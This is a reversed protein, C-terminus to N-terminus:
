RCSLSRVSSIPGAIGPAVGIKVAAAPRNCKAGRQPRAVSAHRWAKGRGRDVGGKRIARRGTADRVQQGVQDIAQRVSLVVCSRFDFNASSMVADIRLRAVAHFSARRV